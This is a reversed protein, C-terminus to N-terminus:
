VRGKVALVADIQAWYGQDSQPTDADQPVLAVDYLYMGRGAARETAFSAPDRVIAQLAEFLEFAKNEAEDSESGDGRRVLIHVNLGFTEAKAGSGQRGIAAYEQTWNETGGVVISIDELGEFGPFGYTIQVDMLAPADSERLLRVFERKVDPVLSYITV